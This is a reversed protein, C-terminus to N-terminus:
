LAQGKAEITNGELNLIKPISPGHIDIDLLGVRKGALALSVALNVAVTSKGVGGKGSLVLIQHKILEVKERIEAQENQLQKRRELDIQPIKTEKAM